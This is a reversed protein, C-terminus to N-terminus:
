HFRKPAPPLAGKPLMGNLRKNTTLWDEDYLPVYPAESPKDEATNYFRERQVLCIEFGAARAAPLTRSDMSNFPFLVTRPRKGLHDTLLQAATALDEEVQEQRGFTALPQDHLSLSGIELGEAQLRQLDAWTLMMEPDFYANTVRRELEELVIARNRPALTKVLRLMEDVFKARQTYTTAKLSQLEPLLQLEKFTLPNEEAKLLYNALYYYWPAKQAEVLGPAVLLTTPIHYAQLLPWAHVKFDRYGGTFVLVAKPMNSKPKATQYLADGLPLMEFHKSFHKLLREFAEMPYPPLAPDAFPGTRDLQFIKIRM